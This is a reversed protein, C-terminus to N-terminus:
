NNKSEENYNGIKQALLFDVSIADKGLGYTAKIVSSFAEVVMLKPIGTLAKVAKESTMTNHDHTYLVMDLDKCQGEKYLCGGTLGVHLGYRSVRPELVKALEIGDLVSPAKFNLYYESPYKKSQESM